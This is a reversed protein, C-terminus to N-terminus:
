NIVAAAFYEEILTVVKEVYQADIGADVRLNIISEALLDANPTPRETTAPTLVSAMYRLSPYWRTADHIGNEWLHLLLNDRQEPAVLIPYRWLISGTPRELTRVPLSRLHKDYLASMKARHAMNQDLRKLEDPLADWEDLPLQYNVLLRYIDFLTPYLTLLRPNQLEYQHLAWYLSHWQNTLNLFTENWIPVNELVRAIEAALRDDDTALAGGVQNDVIKGLGFSFVSVDGWAGAARSDVQAGLALAADEIIFIGHAKAWTYIAEMPASLGYMHCPVIAAAQQVDYQELMALSMNATNPAVDVLIPLNGSELVAWLVIYCTNAPILVPRNTYGLARLAAWIGTAARGLLRVHARGTLMQILDQTATTQSHTSSM